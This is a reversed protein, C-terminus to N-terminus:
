HEICDVHKKKLRIFFCETLIPASLFCFLLDFFNDVEMVNQRLALVGNSAYSAACNNNKNLFKANQEAETSEIVVATSAM